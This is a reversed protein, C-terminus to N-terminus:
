TMLKMAVARTNTASSPLSVTPLAPESTAKTLPAVPKNEGAIGLGLLGLALAVAVGAANLWSIATM